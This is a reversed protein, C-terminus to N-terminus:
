RLSPMASIVRTVKPAPNPLGEGTIFNGTTATKGAQASVSTVGNGANWVAFLLTAYAAIGAVPVSLIQPKTM